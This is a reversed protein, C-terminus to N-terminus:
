LPGSGDRDGSNKATNEAIVAFRDSGRVVVTVKNGLASVIGYHLNLVNM